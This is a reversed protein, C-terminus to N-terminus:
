AIERFRTNLKNLRTLYLLRWLCPTEHGKWQSGCVQRWRSVESKKGEPRMAQSDKKMPGITRSKKSESEPGEKTGVGVGVGEEAEEEDDEEQESDETKDSVGSEFLSPDELEECTGSGFGDMTIFIVWM